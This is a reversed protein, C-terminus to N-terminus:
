ISKGSTGKVQELVLPQNMIPLNIMNIAETNSMMIGIIIHPLVNLGFIKDQKATIPAKM